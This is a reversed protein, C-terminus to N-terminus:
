SQGTAYGCDRLTGNAGDKRCVKVHVTRGEPIQRTTMHPNPDQCFTSAGDADELTVTSGDWTWQAWARMGDAEVDCVYMLEPDSVGNFVAKAAVHGPQDSTYAIVTTGAASSPSVSLVTAAAAAFLAVSWRKGNISLMSRM